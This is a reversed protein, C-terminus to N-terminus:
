QVLTPVNRDSITGDGLQGADNRGWCLVRNDTTTVCTHGVGLAVRLVNALGPVKVPSDADSNSGLGLQGHQNRGWCWLDRARDIACTHDAGLSLERVSGLTTLRVPFTSAATDSTGLQGYDNDGWCWVQGQADLGCSHARGAQVQLTGTLNSVRAPATRGGTDGTGLRGFTQEPVSGNDGWCFGFGTAETACTHTSGASLHQAQSLAQVTKPSLSNITDGVGLQGKRNFGWCQLGGTSLLVCTHLAGASVQEVDTLGLVKYPSRRDQRAGNGVQGYDNQGWCWVDGSADHACTHNGFSTLDVVDNLGAVAVPVRSTLGAGPEGLQGAENQGWCKVSGNSSSVCTHQAGAAIERVGMRACINEFCVQQGSQCVGCSFQQGAYDLDGCQAGVLLCPDVCQGQVCEQSGSCSGCSAVQASQEDDVRGCQTQTQTCLDVCTTDERCVERASCTDGCGTVIDPLADSVEDAEDAAEDGPGDLAEDTLDGQPGLDPLNVVPIDRSSDAQADVVEGSACGAGVASAVCISTWLIADRM